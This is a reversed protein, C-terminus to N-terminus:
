FILQKCELNQELIKDETLDKSFLGEKLRHDYFANYPVRNVYCIDSDM